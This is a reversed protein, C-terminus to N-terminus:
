VCIVTMRWLCSPQNIPPCLAKKKPARTYPPQNKSRPHWKNSTPIQESKSVFADINSSQERCSSGLLAGSAFGAQPPM